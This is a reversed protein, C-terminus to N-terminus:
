PTAGRSQTASKDAAPPPELQWVLEFVQPGPKGTNIAGGGNLAYSLAPADFTNEFAVPRAGRIGRVTIKREVVSAQVPKGAADFSRSIRTVGSADFRAALKPFAPAEGSAPAAGQQEVSEFMNGFRATATILTGYRFANLVAAPSDGQALSVRLWWQQIGCKSEWPKEDYTERQALMSSALFPPLALPTRPGGDRMRAIAAMAAEQPLPNPWPPPAARAKGWDNLLQRETDLAAKQQAPPMAQLRAVRSAFDDFRPDGETRCVLPSAKLVELTAKEYAADGPALQWLALENLLRAWVAFYVDSSNARAGASAQARREEQLWAPVLAKIRALHAAGLQDADVRLAPDLKLAKPLVFSRALDANLQASM